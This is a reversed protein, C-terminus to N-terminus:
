TQVLGSNLPRFASSGDSADSVFSAISVDTIGTTEDALTQLRAQLFGEESEETEARGRSLGDLNAEIGPPFPCQEVNDPAGDTARTTETKEFVM